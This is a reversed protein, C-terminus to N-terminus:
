FAQRDGVAKRGDLSVDGSVETPEAGPLDLALCTHAHVEGAAQGVRLQTDVLVDTDVAGHDDGVGADGGTTVDLAHAVAPGGAETVLPALTRLAEEAAVQTAVGRDLAVCGGGQPRRHEAM